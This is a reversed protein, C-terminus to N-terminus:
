TLFYDEATAGNRKIQGGKGYLTCKWSRFLRRLPHHRMKPGTHDRPGAGEEGQLAGPARCARGEGSHKSSSSARDNELPSARSHAPTPLLPRSLTGPQGATHGLHPPHNRPQVHEKFSRQSWQWHQSTYSQVNLPFWNM